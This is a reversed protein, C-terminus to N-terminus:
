GRRRPRCRAPSARSGAAPPVHDQEGGPSGGRSIDAMVGATRRAGAREGHVVPSARVARARDVARGGAQPRGPRARGDPASHVRRDARLNERVRSSASRSMEESDPPRYSTHSPIRGCSDTGVSPAMAAVPLAAIEICRSHPLVPGSPNANVRVRPEGPLSAVLARVRAIEGAVQYRERASLPPATGYMRITRDPMARGGGTGQCHKGADSAGRLDYAM